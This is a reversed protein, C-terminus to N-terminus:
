CTESGGMCFSFENTVFCFGIMRNCLRESSGRFIIPIRPTLSLLIIVMADTLDVEFNVTCMFKALADTCIQVKFILVFNSIM